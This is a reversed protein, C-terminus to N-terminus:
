VNDISFALIKEDHASRYQAGVGFVNACCVCICALLPCGGFLSVFVILAIGEGNM